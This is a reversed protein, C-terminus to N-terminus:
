FESEKLNFETEESCKCTNEMLERMSKMNNNLLSEYIKLLEDAHEEITKLKKIGQRLKHILDPEDIIRKIKEALDDPNGAEFLLGNVGDKIFDPIGGTNSAITPTGSSLAEWVTRPSTDPIIPPIIQVDIEEYISPLDGYNFEGKFIINPMGMKKILRKMIHGYNGMSIKGYVYLNCGKVKGMKQFAKLLIHLGKERWIPGIYAFNIFDKKKKTFSFFNDAFEFGSHLMKIKQSDIDNQIFIRKSGNSVAIILDAYQNLMERMFNIRFNWKEINAPKAEKDQLIEKNKYNNLLNEVYSQKNIFHSLGEDRIYKIVNILNQPLLKRFKEKFGYIPVKHVDCYRACNVGNNPGECVENNWRCLFGTNCLFWYDHLSVIVPIGFEKSIRITSAPRAAHFHIVDPNIKKLFEKFLQEEKSSECDLIPEPSRFYYLKNNILESVKAYKFDANEARKIYSDKTGFFQTVPALIFVENGRSYFAKALAQQYYAVGGGRFPHPGVFLIKM